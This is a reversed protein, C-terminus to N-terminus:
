ELGLTQPNVRADPDVLAKIGQIIKYTDTQLGEKFSYTKGIQLHVGGLEKFFTSLESRIEHVKDRAPLNEEFKTIKALYDAEVSKEHIETYADPWFFVPELVFCNTSVTAFLYGVGIEFKEMDTAHKAFIAEVGDHAQKIKSHSFLGHVPVWREGQPGLMNNVPGFPNSRTIKPISNEIENGNFQKAIARIDSIRADVAADIRDEVIIQVSYAVDKMYSRGAMALKAGDKIAGLLSGSSKMVGALAKVDKGLSERKLRQAQLFPDFGFCEMALGQRSIESMAAICDDAQKFDFALFGKAPLEPILRFTATAKFGFAGNDCTFLGTLDPGYHRFFPTSNVQAASGTTVLTGDGLAVELGLVSDVATGFQGSGWFISNQSLGGGITAKSGSLTGWYPTRFGSGKLSEHLKKWSCGCEVTVYMDQTNIELVRNMRSLDVLVSNKKAPVYGKTYSMGGGRPVVFMDFAAAIRLIESLQQKNDPSVVIEAPIDKTFVDQAFLSTSYDDVLVNDKGLVAEMATLVDQKSHINKDM